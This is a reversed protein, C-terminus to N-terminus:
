LFRASSPQLITENSGIENHSSQAAPNDFTVRWFGLAAKLLILSRSVQSRDVCPAPPHCVSMFHIM